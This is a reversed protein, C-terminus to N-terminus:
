EFVEYNIITDVISNEDVISTQVIKGDMIVIIVPVIEEKYIPIDKTIIRLFSILIVIIMILIYLYDYLLIKRLRLM